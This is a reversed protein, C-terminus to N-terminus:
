QSASKGDSKILQEISQIFEASIQARDYRSIQELSPPSFDHQAVRHCYSKIAEAIAQPDYMSAIVAMNNENLLRATDGQPDTLALVPKQVRLYEYAKAPIQQNCDSGQLLLLGDVEFMEQLADAYPIPPELEVRVEINLAKLLPRYQEEHGTARLVLLLPHEDFFGQQQLQAIAQFLPKPNREHPYILGSHLLKFPAVGQKSITQAKAPSKINQYRREEFGNTMVMWRESPVEPYRQRYEAMAGPTAFVLRTAHRAAQEEIWKFSRWQARNAPYGEQAMPDRFDAVWPTKTLRHLILGILHASAIPYTSIILAPRKRRIEVLGKLVAFLVWSQLTDPLAMWQLYKGKFSLHKRTDFAKARLVRIRADIEIVSSADVRDYIDPQATLVSIQWNRSAMTNALALVRHVGSSFAVPPFHYAVLLASNGSQSMKAM